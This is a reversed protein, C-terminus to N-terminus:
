LSALLSATRSALLRWAVSSDLVGGGDGLGVGVRLSVCNRELGFCGLRLPRPPSAAAAVSRHPSPSRRLHEQNVPEVPHQRRQPQPLLLGLDEEEAEVVGALGGEEV